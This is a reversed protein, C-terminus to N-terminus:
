FVMSIHVAARRNLYHLSDNFIYPYESGLPIGEYSSGVPLKQEIVAARYQSLKYNNKEPGAACTHGRVVYNFKSPELSSLCSSIHEMFISDGVTQFSHDGYSYFIRIVLSSDTFAVDYNLSDSYEKYMAQYLKVLLVGKCYTDITDRAIRNNYFNKYLRLCSSCQMSDFFSENNQNCNSAKLFKILKLKVFEPSHIISDSFNHKNYLFFSDIKQIDNIAFACNGSVANLYTALTRIESYIPQKNAKLFGILEEVLEYPKINDEVLNSSDVIRSVEIAVTEQLQSCFTKVCAEPCNSAILINTDQVIRKLDAISFRANLIESICCPNKLIQDFLIYNSNDTILPELKDFTYVYSRSSRNSTDIRPIFHIKLAGQYGIITGSLGVDARKKRNREIKKFDKDRWDRFKSTKATFHKKWFPSKNISEEIIEDIQYIGNPAFVKFPKILVTTKEIDHFTAPLSTIKKPLLAWVAAAAGIFTAIAGILAWDVKFSLVNFISYSPRLKQLQLAANQLKSIVNQVEGIDFKQPREVVNKEISDILSIVNRYKKRRLFRFVIKRRLIRNAKKLQGKAIRRNVKDIISM